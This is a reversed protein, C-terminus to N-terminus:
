SRGRGGGSKPESITRRRGFEPWTDSGTTCVRACALRMLKRASGVRGARGRVPEAAKTAGRELESGPVAPGGGQEGAEGSAGAFHFAAARGSHEKGGFADARLSDQGAASTGPEEPGPCAAGPRPGRESRRVEPCRPTARTRGSGQGGQGATRGQEPRASPVDPHTPAKCLCLGECLLCEGWFRHDASCLAAQVNRRREEGGAM